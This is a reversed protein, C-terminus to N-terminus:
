SSRRPGTGAPDGNPNHFVDVTVQVDQFAAASAAFSANGASIRFDGNPFFLGGLLSGQATGNATAWAVSSNEQHAGTLRITFVARSVNANTNTGAPEQIPAADIVTLSPAADDNNIAGTAVGTGSITGNVPGLADVHLDRQSRVDHRRQDPRQDHREDLGRSDVADREHGRLRRVHSGALM